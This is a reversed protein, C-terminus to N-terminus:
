PRYIKYAYYGDSGKAVGQYLVPYGYASYSCAALAEQPSRSSYGSGEVTGGGLGLHQGVHRM